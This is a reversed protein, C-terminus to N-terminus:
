KAYIIVEYNWTKKAASWSTKTIYVGDFGDFIKIFESPILKSEASIEVVYIEASQSSNAVVDVVVTMSADLGISQFRSTLERVMDDTNRTDRSSVTKIGPLKARVFIENDTIEQVFVGPMNEAAIAYFDDLTGFSRKFTMSGSQSSSRMSAAKWGLVFHKKPSVM